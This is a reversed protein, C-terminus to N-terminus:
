DEPQLQRPTELHEARGANAQRSNLVELVALLARPIGHIPPILHTAGWSATEMVMPQGVTHLLTRAGLQRSDSCGFVLGSSTISRSKRNVPDKLPCVSRGTAGVPNSNFLGHFTPARRRKRDPAQYKFSVIDRATPSSAISSPLPPKQVCRFSYSKGGAIM